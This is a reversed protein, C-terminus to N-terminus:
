PNIQSHDIDAQLKYASPLQSNVREQIELERGLRGASVEAAIWKERLKGAQRAVHQYADWAEQAAM